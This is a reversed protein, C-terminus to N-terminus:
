FYIRTWYFYGKTMLKALKKAM